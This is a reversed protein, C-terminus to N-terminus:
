SDLAQLMERRLDQIQEPRRCPGYRIESGDRIEVVVNGGIDCGFGQWVDRPLPSPIAHAIKSLSREKKDPQRLFTPSSPGEPIPELWVAVVDEETLPLPSSQKWLYYGVAVALIVVAAVWPRKVLPPAM